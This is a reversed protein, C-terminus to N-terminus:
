EKEIKHKISMDNISFPSDSNRAQGVLLVKLDSDNDYDSNIFSRKKAM